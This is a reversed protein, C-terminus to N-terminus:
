TIRETSAGRCSHSRSEAEFHDIIAAGDRIVAGSQLEVTPMGQRGGARPVVHKAYHMSTPTTERYDIGAKTLSARFLRTM